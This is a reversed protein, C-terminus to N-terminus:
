YFIDQLLSNRVMLFLPYDLIGLPLSDFRIPKQCRSLVFALDKMTRADAKHWNSAYVANATTLTRM